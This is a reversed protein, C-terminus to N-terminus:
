HIICSCVAERLTINYCWLVMGKSVVHVHHYNTNGTTDAMQGLREICSVFLYVNVSATYRPSPQMM